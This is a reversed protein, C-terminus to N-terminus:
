KLINFLIQLYRNRDGYINQFLCIHDPSDMKFNLSLDKKYASFRFIDMTEYLVDILDFYNMELSFQYESINSVDIINQIRFELFNSDLLGEKIINEAEMLNQIVNPISENLTNM